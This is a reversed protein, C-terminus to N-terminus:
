TFEKVVSICAPGCKFTYNMGPPTEGHIECFTTSKLVPTPKLADRQKELQLIEARLERVYEAGDRVAKKRELGAEMRNGLSQAEEILGRMNGFSLTDVCSRLEGLVACLTRSPWRLDCFSDPRSAHEAM